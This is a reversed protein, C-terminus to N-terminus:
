PKRTESIQRGDNCKERHRIEALLIRYKGMLSASEEIGKDTTELSSFENWEKGALESAKHYLSRLLEQEEPTGNAAIAAEKCAQVYAVLNERDYPGINM